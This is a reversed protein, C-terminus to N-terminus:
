KILKGLQIGHAISYLRADLLYDRTRCLELLHDMMNEVPILEINIQESPELEQKPHKNEELSSDVNIKVIRTCEDSKWPDNYIIEGEGVIDEKRATYGTEEKFERIASYGPDIDDKDILGAPLELVFKSVPYRFISIAILKLISEHTITALISVGDVQSSKTTRSVYEWKKIKGQSDVFSM